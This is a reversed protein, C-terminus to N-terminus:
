ATTEKELDGYGTKEAALARRRAHLSLSTLMKLHSDLQRVTANREDAPDQLALDHVLSLVHGIGIHEKSYLLVRRTSDTPLKTPLHGINHQALKYEINEIVRAGAKQAGFLRVLHEVDMAQHGAFRLGHALSEWEDMDEWRKVVM